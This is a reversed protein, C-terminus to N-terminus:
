MPVAFRALPTTIKRESTLKILSNANAVGKAKLISRSGGALRGGGAVGLTGM